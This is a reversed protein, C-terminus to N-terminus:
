HIKIFFYGNLIYVEKFTAFIYSIIDKGMKKSTSCKYQRFAVMEVDEFISDLDAHQVLLHGVGVPDYNRMTDLMFKYAMFEEVYFTKPTTRDVRCTVKDGTATNIVVVFEGARVTRRSSHLPRNYANNRQRAM